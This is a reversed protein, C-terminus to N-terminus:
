LTQSIAPLLLRQDHERKRKHSTTNLMFFFFCMFVHKTQSVVIRLSNIDTAICRMELSTPYICPTFDCRVHSRTVALIHRPLMNESRLQSCCTRVRLTDFIAAQDTAMCAVFQAPRTMGKTDSRNIIVKSSKIKKVTFCTCHHNLNCVLFSLKLDWKICFESITELLM